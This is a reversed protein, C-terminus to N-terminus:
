LFIGYLFIIIFFEKYFLGNYFFHRTLFTKYFLPIFLIIFFLTIFFNSVGGVCACGSILTFSYQYISNPTCQIGSSIVWRVGGVCVCMWLCHQPTHLREIKVWSRSWNTFIGAGARARYDVTRYWVIKQQLFTTFIQNEVKESSTKKM